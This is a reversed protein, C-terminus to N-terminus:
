GRIENPPNIACVRATLFEPRACLSIRTPVVGCPPSSCRSSTSLSANECLSAGSTLNGRKKVDESALWAAPRANRLRALTRVTSRIRLAALGHTVRLGFRQDVPTRQFIRRVRNKLGDSLGRKNDAPAVISHEGVFIGVEHKFMESVRLEDQIGVGAGGRMSSRGLPRMGKGACLCRRCPVAVGLHLFNRVQSTRKHRFVGIWQLAKCDPVAVGASSDGRSTSAHARREGAGVRLTTHRERDLDIASLM